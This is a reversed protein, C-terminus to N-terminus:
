IREPVVRLAAVPGPAAGIPRLTGVAPDRRALRGADLRSEPEAGIRERAQACCRQPLAREVGGTGSHREIGAPEEAVEDAHQLVPVLAADAHELEIEGIEADGGLAVLVTQRPLLDPPEVGAREM